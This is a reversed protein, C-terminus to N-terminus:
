QHRVPCSELSHTIMIAYCQRFVGFTLPQKGEREKEEHICHVPGSQRTHGHKAWLPHGHNQHSSISAIMCGAKEVLSGQGRHHGRQYMCYHGGGEGGSPWSPCTRRCFIVRHSAEQDHDDSLPTRFLVTAQARPPPLATSSSSAVRSYDLDVGGMTTHTCLIYMTYRFQRGVQSHGNQPPSPPDSREESLPVGKNHARTFLQM